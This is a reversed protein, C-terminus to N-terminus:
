IGFPISLNSIVFWFLRSNLNGLLYLSDTGLCYATNALYIGSLDLAFRPAKCIDPFVIKPADLHSYYDCPRLEWWYHGQDERKKLKARFRGLHRAISPHNSTLWMTAERESPESNGDSTAAIQERTWGCPIVILFRRNDEVFYRRIDQGGLFPKILLASVPSERLLEDRQGQTLEFAENLGTKLGYFM